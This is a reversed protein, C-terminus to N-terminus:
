PADDLHFKTLFRKISPHKEALHIFYARIIQFALYGFLATIFIGEIILSVKNFM